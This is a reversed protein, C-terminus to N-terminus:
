YFYQVHHNIGQLDLIVTFHYVTAKADAKLQKEGPRRGMPQSLAHANGPPALHYKGFDVSTIEHNYSFWGLSLIGKFPM